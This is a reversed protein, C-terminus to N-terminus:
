RRSARIGAPQAAADKELFRLMPAYVEREEMATFDRLRQIRREVEATYGDWDAAIAQPTWRRVHESYSMWSTRIAQLHGLIEPHHAFGDAAKFPELILAEESLRHRNIQRALQARLQHIKAPSRPTERLAALIAEASAQIERHEDFLTASV